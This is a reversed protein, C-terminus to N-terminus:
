ELLPNYLKLGPFRSFDSDNSHLESGTEVALAALHADTVLNGGTDVTKLFSKFLSFHRSGPNLPQVNPREFWVQIWNCCVEVSVPKELVQRHTMLRVFGCTVVWPLGVITQESLLKEWWKKASRHHPALQNYAYVLLNIDPIVM